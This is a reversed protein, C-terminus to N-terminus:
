LWWFHERCSFKANLLHKNWHAHLKVHPGHAAHPGRTCKTRGAIRKHINM